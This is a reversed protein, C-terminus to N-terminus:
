LYIVTRLSRNGTSGSVILAIISPFQSENFKGFMFINNMKLNLVTLTKINVRVFNHTTTNISM